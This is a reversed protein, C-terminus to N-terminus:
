ALDDGPNPERGSPPLLHRDARQPPNILVGRRDFRMDKGQRLKVGPHLVAARSRTTIGNRLDVDALASSTVEPAEVEHDPNRHLVPM